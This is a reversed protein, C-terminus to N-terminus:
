NLEPDRSLHRWPRLRDLVQRRSELISALAHGREALDALLLELKRPPPLDLGAALRNVVQEFRHEGSRLLALTEADFAVMERLEPLVHAALDLIRQRLRVVSPDSEDVPEEALPRAVVERFPRASPIQRAVEFRYEGALTVRPPGFGTDPEESFEDEWEEDDLSPDDPDFEDEEPVEYGLERLRAEEKLVDELSIEWEPLYLGVLRAVTGGPFVEPRGFPDAEGGPMPLVVGAWREEEPQDMLERILRWAGRDTIPVEIRTGPFCVAEEVTLLPLRDGPGTRTPRPDDHPDHLDDPAM